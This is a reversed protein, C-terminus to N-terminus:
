MAHNCGSAPTLKPYTLKTCVCHTRTLSLDRGAEGGDVDRARPDTNLAGDDEERGSAGKRQPWRAFPDRCGGRGGADSDLLRSCIMRDVRARTEPRPWRHGAGGHAGHAAVDAEGVLEEAARAAAAAVLM